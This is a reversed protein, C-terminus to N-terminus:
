KSKAEDNLIEKIITEAAVIREEKTDYPLLYESERIFELIRNRYINLRMETSFSIVSPSENFYEKALMEADKYMALTTKDKINIYDNVKKHGHIVTAHNKNFAKGIVSYSIGRSRLVYFLSQRASVISELRTNSLLDMKFYESAVDVFCRIDKESYGIEM